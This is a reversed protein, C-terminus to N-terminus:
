LESIIFGGTQCYFDKIWDERNRGINDLNDFVLGRVEVGYHKGNRTIAENGRRESVIYEEKDGRKQYGRYDIELKLLTTEIGQSGCWEIMARACDECEFIEFEEIIEAVRAYVEADTLQSM